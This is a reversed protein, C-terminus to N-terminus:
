KDSRTTPAGRKKRRISVLFAYALFVLTVHHHWGRWSRGEFHDLGLENKLERYSQEIPWRSRATLVLRKLSTREPLNSFYYKSPHEEGSPWEVILWITQAPAKGARVGHGPRVRWAAFRSTMAGKTGQRWTVERFRGAHDLAWQRVSFTPLGEVVAAPRSPPRGSHGRPPVEGLDLNGDVVSLTSDIGVAYGLGWESLANRFDTVSGFESDALVIGSLGEERARGIMALALKWKPQYRVETPVKGALLRKSDDTWRKPLYLEADIAFVDQRGALQLTVAVQCNAVKGLTGCYQRAVGVSHKGKKPFGVGDVLLFLDGKLRRKVWQALRRRVPREDWPSQNVFQQLAQEYDCSAQDVQELRRAMPEISKRQGDLLLGRIYTEAWARRDRRGLDPTLEEVFEALASRLQSLKRADM